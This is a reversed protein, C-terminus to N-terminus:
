KLRQQEDDISRLLMQSLLINHMGYSQVFRLLDLRNTVDLQLSRKKPLNKVGEAEGRKFPPFIKFLFEATTNIQETLMSTTLNPTQNRSEVNHMTRTNECYKEIECDLMKKWSDFLAGYGSSHCEVCNDRVTKFSSGDMELKHCEKCSVANSMWDPMKTIMNQICGDMYEKVEAHCKLCDEDTADKHHCTVCDKNQIILSGHTETNADYDRHCVNCELGHNPSHTRHRFYEKNYMTQYTMYNVHCRNICSGTLFQTRFQQISNSPLFSKKQSFKELGSDDGNQLVPSLSSPLPSTTQQATFYSVDGWATQQSLIFSIFFVYRLSM